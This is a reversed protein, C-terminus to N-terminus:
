LWSVALSLHWLNALPQCQPHAVTVNGRCLSLSVTVWLMSWQDVTYDLTCHAICHTLIFWVHLWPGLKCSGSVILGRVLMVTLLLLVIFSLEIRQDVLAFSSRDYVHKIFKLCVLDLPMNDGMRVGYHMSCCSFICGLFLEMDLPLAM